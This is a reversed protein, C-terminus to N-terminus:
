KVRGLYLQVFVNVYKIMGEDSIDPVSLNIINSILCNFAQASNSKCFHNTINQSQM